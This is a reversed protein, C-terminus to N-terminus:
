REIKDPLIFEYRKRLLFTKLWRDIKRFALFLSWILKDEKYYKEVESASLNDEEGLLNKNIIEITDPILDSKKEKFLNAALDTGVLKPFYAQIQTSEGM